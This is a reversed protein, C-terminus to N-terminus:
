ALTMGIDDATKRKKYVVKTKGGRDSKTVEIEILGSAELSKAAAMFQASTIKQHRRNIERQTIEGLTSVASLIKKQAQHQQEDIVDDLLLNCSTRALFNSLAIAWEVDEAEIQLFLWDITAPDDRLRAARHVMALKMTRAAVRCWVGARLEGECDMRERIKESHETWRSFAPATMKLIAPAPGELNGEGRPAWEIWRKVQTVLYDPPPSATSIVMKPRDQCVFFALRGFLGDDVQDATISSFVKPTTLGLL